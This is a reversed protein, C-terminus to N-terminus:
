GLFEEHTQLVDTRDFGIALVAVVGGIVRRARIRMAFGHGADRTMRLRHHSAVVAMERRFQRAVALDEVARRLM